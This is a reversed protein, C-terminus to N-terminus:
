LQRCVCRLVGEVAWQMVTLDFRIHDEIEAAANALRYKKEQEAKELAADVIEGAKNIAEQRSQEVLDHGKKQADLLIHDAEVKAAEVILRAESETAIIRKIVDRM